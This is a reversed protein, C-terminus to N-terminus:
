RSLYVAAGADFLLALSLAMVAGLALDSERVRRLAFIGVGILAVANIASYIWRGHQELAQGFFIALFLSGLSAVVGLLFGLFVQLNFRAPKKPETELM